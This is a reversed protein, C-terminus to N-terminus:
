LEVEIQGRARRRQIGILVSSKHEKITRLVATQLEQVNKILVGNISFIRDGSRIGYRHLRGNPSIGGIILSDLEVGLKKKLM